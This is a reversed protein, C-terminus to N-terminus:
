RLLRRLTLFRPVPSLPAADHRPQAQQASPAAPWLAAVAVPPGLDPLQITRESAPAQNAPVFDSACIQDSAGEHRDIVSACNQPIRHQGGVYDPCAAAAAAFQVFVMLAALGRLFWRTRSTARTASLGNVM